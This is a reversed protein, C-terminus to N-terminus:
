KRKSVKGGKSKGWTESKKEFDLSTPSLNAIDCLELFINEPLTRSENYYNKLTSYNTSIGFNILGALSPAAIKKIVEDIFERQSGKQFIIRM